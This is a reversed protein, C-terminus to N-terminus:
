SFLKRLRGKITHILQVLKGDPNCLREMRSALPM